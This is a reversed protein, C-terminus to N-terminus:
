ANRVLLDGRGILLLWEAFSPERPLTGEEAMRIVQEDTLRHANRLIALREEVDPAALEESPKVQWTSTGV